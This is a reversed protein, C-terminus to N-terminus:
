AMGKRYRRTTVILWVVFMGVTTSVSVGVVKLFNFAYRRGEPDYSYCFALVRNLPPMTKGKAAEILSMKVDFPM